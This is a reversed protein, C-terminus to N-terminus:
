NKNIFASLYLVFVSIFKTQDVALVHVYVVVQRQIYLVILQLRLRADSGVSDDSKLNDRMGDCFDIGPVVVGARDVCISIVELEVLFRLM